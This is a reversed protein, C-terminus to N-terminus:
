RGRLVPEALRYGGSFLADVVPAPRRAPAPSPASKPQSEVRVQMKGNSVNIRVCKLLAHFVVTHKGDQGGAAAAILGMRELERQRHYISSQPLNFEVVLEHASKPSVELSSLIHRSSIDGLSSPDSETSLNSRMVGGRCRM